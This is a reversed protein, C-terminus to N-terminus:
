GLVRFTINGIRILSNNTIASMDKIRREEARNGSYSVYTGANSGLDSVVLREKEWSVQAHRSNASADKIVIDNETGSGIIIRPKDVPYRVTVSPPNIHFFILADKNLKVASGEKIANFEGSKLNRGQILDGTFSVFIEKLAGMNKLLYRGKEEYILIQKQEIGPLRIIIDNDIGSGISIQPNKQLFNTELWRKVPAPTEVPKAKVEPKQAAPPPPAPTPAVKIEAPPAKIEPKPAIPASPVSIPPAIRREEKDMIVLIANVSAGLIAGLLALGLAQTFIGFKPLFELVLGGIIGGVLGGMGGYAIGKLSPKELRQGLGLFLGFLAWSILIFVLNKEIGSAFRFLILQSIVGGTIGLVLGDVLGSLIKERSREPVGKAIGLLGGILLGLIAGKLLVGKLSPSVDQQIFPLLLILWSLLGGLGGFLTGYGIRM